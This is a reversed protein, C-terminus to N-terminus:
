FAEAVTYTPKVAVFETTMLRGISDKPYGLLQNTIVRQEPSLQAILQKSVEWPLEELFATRDDPDIDNLLRAIKTANEALGEIIEQQEDHSLLKFVEKTQEKNLLRFIIIKDRDTVEELMEVVQYPELREVEQKLSKWDEIKILSTFVIRLEDLMNEM